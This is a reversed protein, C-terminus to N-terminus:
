GADCAQEDGSPQPAQEAGLYVPPIRILARRPRPRATSASATSPADPGATLSPRTAYLTPMRMSGAAPASPRAPAIRPTIARKRRAPTARESKATTSPADTAAIGAAPYRRARETGGILSM